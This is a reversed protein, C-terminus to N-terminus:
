RRCRWRARRSGGPDTRRSGTTPGTSRARRRRDHGLHHQGGQQHQDHQGGAAAAEGDAHLPRTAPRVSVRMWRMEIGTSLVDTLGARLRPARRQEGLGVGLRELLQPREDDERQDAGHDADDHPQDDVLRASSSVISASTGPAISTRSVMSIPTPSITSLTSSAESRRQAVFALDVVRRVGADACTPGSRAAFRELARTPPASPLLLDTRASRRARAAPQRPREVRGARAPRHRPGQGDRRAADAPQLQARLRAAGGRRQPDGAAPRRPVRGAHVHAPGRHRRRPRRRGAVGRGRAAGRCRARRRGSVVAPDRRSLARRLGARHRAPRRPARGDRRGATPSGLVGHQLRPRVAPQHVAIADGVPILGTVVPEGDVVYERWRNLLGAMVHVDPTIPEARGDLWEAAVTLQRAAADFVEPDALLKRLQEDETPTALTVSFTGNDGAFVGYKLYGLDGGIVGSRGPFSCGPRLRYFRSFYVIGTDEVEEAIEAAGVAALWEPVVGRRGVAAVVLTPTSPRATPWACARSGRARRRRGDATVGISRWGPARVDVRGEALAVRRLVWEFTTRRCAIMALDEDGPERVFDTMTPPLDEGFRIETAGAQSCRRWCM